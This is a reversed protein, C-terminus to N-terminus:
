LKYCGPGEIISVGESKPIVQIQAAIREKLAQVHSIIGIMRGKRKVEGLADLATSMADEDLTGFGEDLFLSDVRAKSGSFQSLGLALALSIIFREGGSLNETPRIEGAQESDIVSLELKANNPTIKLRYRGNMTQLYSNANKVVLELTIRQAYVRLKDGESSGILDNLAAWRNAKVEQAELERKLDDIKGQLTQIDMLKQSLVAINENLAKIKGEEDAFLKEAEELTIKEPALKRKEDLKRSIDDSLAILETMRTNLEDRRNKLKALREADLCSALFTQEDIFNQAKLKATFDPEDIELQSSIKDLNEREPALNSKTTELKAKVEAKSKEASQIKKDLLNLNDAWENVRPIVDEVKTIEGINLSNVAKMVEDRLAKCEEHKAQWDARLKDLENRANTESIKADNYEKQAKEYLARLRDVESNARRLKEDIKESLRFLEESKGTIEGSSEHAHNIGPHEIAGCLPCPQGPQLIARQEDLVASATKARSNMLAELIEGHTKLAEDVKQRLNERAEDKKQSNAQSLEYKKKAQCGEDKLKKKERDAKSYNEVLSKIKERVADASDTIDGRLRAFEEQAQPLYEEIKALLGRHAAIEQTMRSCKAQSQERSQRLSVLKSYDLKLTEAREGTELIVRDHEFEDLRRQQIIIEDQRTRQEEELKRIEKLIDRQSKTTSHQLDLTQIESREAELRANIEDESDSSILAENESLRLNIDRLSATESKSRQFVRRSIESYIKTGTILELIEARENKDAKLFKDFNGQELMMARTFRMFDMGTLRIIEQQTKQTQTTIPIHTNEDSLHHDPPQLEGNKRSQGWKSTFKGQETEFTVQAFCEDEGISLIENTSKNVRTLRSTRGYLALCVADFITTKGAGTPGTIAFIGNSAYVKDTLDIHWEGRLSNLNRFRVDLIKM